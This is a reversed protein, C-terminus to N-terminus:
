PSLEKFNASSGADQRRGPWAHRLPPPFFPAALKGVQRNARGFRCTPLSAAVNKGGGRLVDGPLGPGREQSEASTFTKQGGGTEGRVSFFCFSLRAHPAARHAPGTVTDAPAPRCPPPRACRSPCGRMGRLTAVGAEAENKERFRRQVLVSVRSVNATALDPRGDGDFDGVAISRRWSWPAVAYGIAPSFSVTLLARDELAEPLPRCRAPAKRTTRPKRAFMERIWCRATM